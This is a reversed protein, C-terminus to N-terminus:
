AEAPVPRGAPAAIAHEAARSVEAWATWTAIRRHAAEIAADLVVDGLILRLPPDDSDVLTLVAAAALAPDSDVSGGGAQAALDERIQAYDALPETTGMAAYLGTWYGGPEVITVAVGFPALEAALAESMGELAYKSASYLGATPGTVVGGISSIQVLHGAGQGRLVPAVAQVVWLAGFFNTEMQARAQEETYEEVFGMSLNGANNVVVDLRGFRELAREVAAFVAERDTVDVVLTLVRPDAALDALSDATRSVAVVRDGADLAARVFARGLGRSAGTIFWVRPSRTSRPM